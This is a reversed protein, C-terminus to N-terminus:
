PSRFRYYSGPANGPPTDIFTSNGTASLTNTSVGVWVPNSLNTCAEVVIVANTPGTINFGFHGNSFGPNHAQPDWLVAPAGGLSSSWGFANGRYYVTANDAYDVVLTQTVRGKDDVSYVYHYLVFLPDSPYSDLAPGDGQFYVSSLSSCFLFAGAGVHTVGRPIVISTLNSCSLFTWFKIDTLSQSLVASKLSSCGSFAEAGLSIVSDPIV